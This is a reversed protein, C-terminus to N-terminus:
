LKCTVRLTKAFLFGKLVCTVKLTEAFFFSQQVDDKHSNELYVNQIGSYGGDM